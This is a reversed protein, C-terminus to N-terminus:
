DSSFLGLFFLGVAMGIYGFTSVPEGINLAELVGVTEAIWIVPLSILAKWLGM